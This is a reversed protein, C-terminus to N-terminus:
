KSFFPKETTTGSNIIRVKVDFEFQADSFRQEWDKKWRKWLAPDKAYIKNGLGIADFQKEQLLTITKKLEKEIHKEVNIVFKKEEEPTFLKSCGLEQLAVELKISGNVKLLDNKFMPKLKTKASLVEVVEMKKPQKQCPVELMGNRYEDLLMQLKEINPPSLVAIMKGKKIMAVGAVSSSSESDHSHKYAYPLLSDNMESKMQIAFQLLKMDITNQSTKSSNEENILLQQGITSEMMPKMQLYDAAKGKVIMTTSTVRTEHDRYFLELVEGLHRKRALEEGIIISRVHGWHAKRGIHIPIDRIAEVVTDDTTKVNLYTKAQEGGQGGKTGVPSPKYFQTTLLIKGEETEDIAVGIAFARNTLEM